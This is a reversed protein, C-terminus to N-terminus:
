HRLLADARLYFGQRQAVPMYQGSPAVNYGVSVGFGPLPVITAELGFTKHTIGAAAMVDMRAGIGIRDTLWQTAGAYANWTVHSFDASRAGVGARLETARLSFSGDLQGGLGPVLALKGQEYRGTALLALREGRYAMGLTYRHGAKDSAGFVSQGNETVTFKNVSYAVNSRVGFSWPAAASGDHSLDAGVGALVNDRHYRLDASAIGALVPRLVLSLKTGFDLNKSLPVDASIASLLRGQEGRYSPLEYTLDYKSIGVQTSLGFAGQHEPGNETWRVRDEVKIGLKEGLPANATLTTLSAHGSLNQMHRLKLGYEGKVGAEIIASSGSVDGYGLGAALVGRGLAYEGLMEAYIRDSFQPLVAGFDTPPLKGDLGSHTAYNLSGKLAVVESLAFRGTAHAHLGKTTTSPGAYGDAQYSFQAGFQVRTTEAKVEAQVMAGHASLALLRASMFKDEYVGRVGFATVKGDNMAGAVVELGNDGQKNLGFHGTGYRLAASWNGILGPIDGVRNYSVVVKAGALDPVLHQPARVLVVTGTTYSISYDVGRTLLQEFANGNKTGQVKVIESGQAVDPGLAIVGTQSESVRSQVRDEVRAYGGIISFDGARFIVNTGDGAVNGGTLPFQTANLAYRATFRPSDYEAAVPGRATLPQQLLSADGTILQRPTQIEALTQLGKSDGVARVTGEGLPLEAAFRGDLEVSRVSFESLHSLPVTVSGNAVAIGQSGGPLKYSGGGSLQWASVKVTGGSQPRLVLEGVGSVLPLQYGAVSPLADPTAPQAGEINLTVNNLPVTLGDKDVTTVRIVSENQGNGNLKVPTLVINVAGDPVKVTIRDKDAEIVNEGPRLEVAYYSLRGGSGDNRILKKGIHKDSVVAGNVKVVPLDTGQYEIELRTQTDVVAGSLPFRILGETRETAAPKVPVQATFYEKSVNGSIMELVTGNVRAVAPRALDSLKGLHKVRYSIARTQAPVSFFLQNESVKVVSNDAAKGDILVSGYVLSAEAPLQHQVAVTGRANTELQLTITSERELAQLERVVIQPPPAPVQLAPAPPAPPKIVPPKVAPPKVVPEIKQPVATIELPTPAVVQITNSHQKAKEPIRAQLLTAFVSAPVTITVTDRDEAPPLAVRSVAANVLRLELEAAGDTDYIEIQADAKDPLFQAITEFERSLVTLNVRSATLKAGIVKLGFTNKAKGTTVINLQYQGAQLEKEYLVFSPLAAADEPGFTRQAILKGDKDLLSYTTHTDAKDYHEDGYERHSRYDAPDLAPSIIEISVRTSQPVTVTLNQEGDLWLLGTGVSTLKPTQMSGVQIVGEQTNVAPLNAAGASSFLLATLWVKKM